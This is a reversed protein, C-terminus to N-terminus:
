GTLGPWGAPLEDRNRGLDTPPLPTHPVLAERSPGERLNDISTFKTQSGEFYLEVKGTPGQRHKAIILEAIGKADTEPNYYEDRYVFMVLDCDQEIAGSDRLDSLQPRKDMRKECERSLQSLAIIPLDLERALQKLGRSIAGVEATRNDGKFGPGGSMLQIYDVFIAALEPFDAKVRRAKRKADAISLDGDDDILMPADALTGAANVLKEYEPGGITGVRVKNGDVGARAVMLREVLEDEGMELSFVLTPLGLGLTITAAFNLMMASKGMAPRAALVNLSGNRWGNTKHNLDYFGTDLGSLSNGGEMRRGVDDLVRMSAEKVTKLQEAGRGRAMALIQREAIEAIERPGRTEDFAMGVIQTGLRILQRLMAADAVITAYYTAHAATPIAAVLDVLYGYGGVDDLAAGLEDRVTLLDIPNERRFLAMVAAYITGHPKQYFDDASLWTELDRAVERDLFMAGLVAQEAEINHPPVREIIDKM